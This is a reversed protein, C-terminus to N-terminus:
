KREQEEDEGVGEVRKRWEDKTTPKDSVYYTGKQAVEHREPANLGCLKAAVEIVRAVELPKRAKVDGLEPLMSALHKVAWEQTIGIEEIAKDRGPKTLEAVRAKVDERQANRRSNAASYGVVAGAEAHSLGKALALCFRERRDRYRRLEPMSRQAESQKALCAPSDLLM